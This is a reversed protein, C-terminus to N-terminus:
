VRKPFTASACNLTFKVALTTIRAARINDKEMEKINLHKSSHYWSYVLRLVCKRYIRLIDHQCIKNATSKKGKM